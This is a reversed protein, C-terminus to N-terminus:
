LQLWGANGNPQLDAQCATHESLKQPAGKGWWSSSWPLPFIVKQVGVEGSSTGHFPLFLFETANGKGVEM